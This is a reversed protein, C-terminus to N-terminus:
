RRAREDPAHGRSYGPPAYQRFVRYAHHLLRLRAGPGTGDRWGDRAGRQHAPRTADVALERVGIGLRSALEVERGRELQEDGGDQGGLGGVPPDILDG